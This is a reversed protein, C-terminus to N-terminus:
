AIHVGHNAAVKRIEAGYRAMLEKNATVVSKGHSLATLVAEKAPHLGGIVEIVVDIDNAKCVDTWSTCLKRKDVLPHRNRHIDRVVIRKLEAKAAYQQEIYSKKEELIELVGTGVVGCGLMGIRLEKTM